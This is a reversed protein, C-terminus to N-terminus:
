VTSALPGDTKERESGHMRIGAHVRENLRIFFVIRKIQAKHFLVLSLMYENKTM